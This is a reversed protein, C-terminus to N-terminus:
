AFFQACFQPVFEACFEPVFNPCLIRCLIRAVNQACFEPVFQPMLKPLFNPLIPVCIRSMLETCLNPYLSHAPNQCITFFDFHFNLPALIQFLNSGDVASIRIQLGFVFLSFLLVICPLVLSFISLPTHTASWSSGEGYSYRRVGAKWTAEFKWISGCISDLRIWFVGTM